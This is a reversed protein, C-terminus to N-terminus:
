RRERELVEKLLGRLEDMERRMEHVQGRLEEVVPGVDGPHPPGERPGRPPLPEPPREGHMGEIERALKEALDHLGAAHLNELAARVHAHRVEEEGEPRPRGPREQSEREIAEEVERVEREMLEALEPKGAERLRNVAHRLQDLRLHRAERALEPPMEPHEREIGRIREGIEELERRVDGAREEHGEPLVKLAVELELARGQLEILERFVDQRGPRDGESEGLERNLNGIREHIEELERRLKRAEEPRGDGLGHIEREIAEARELLEARERVLPQVDEDRGRRERDERERREAREPEEREQREAREREGRERREVGERERNEADEAQEAFLGGASAEGGCGALPVLCTMVATAALSRRWSTTLVNMTSEGETLSAQSRAWVTCFVTVFVLLVPGGVKAAASLRRRPPRWSRASLSLLREIRKGLCSRFGSGGMSLWGFRRTKALQRGLSVLCGALVDPGGPVLLSAEDAAAESATRLGSRVWYTLPDWWLLACLVDALLQWAPDRGALHALEHALIVEQRSGGFRGAFGTPLVITPRVLGCAVPTALGAAELVRVPGRLGLRRALREVRGRLRKDTMTECRRGFWVLRFRVWVVRALFVLAIGTWIAVPWRVPTLGAVGMSTVTEPQSPGGAAVSAGEDGDASRAYTDSAWAPSEGDVSDSDVSDSDVSDSDVSDSVSPGLWAHFDRNGLSGLPLCEDFGDTGAGQNGLEPKPVLTQGNIEGFRETGLSSSPFWPLESQRTRRVNVDLSGLDAPSVFPGAAPAQRPVKTHGLRALATGMGTLEVAVLALLGLVGIQWVTRQWIASRLLRCLSVAGAVVIATGVVLVVASGFGPAYEDSLLDYM